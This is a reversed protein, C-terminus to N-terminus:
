YIPYARETHLKRKAFIQLSRPDRLLDDILTATASVSESETTLSAALSALPHATPNLIYIPWDASKRNWHLAPVLGARVLSSKGSGSAGVVALFRTEHPLGSSTLSLIRETLRATM